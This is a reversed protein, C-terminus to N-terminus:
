TALELFLTGVPAASFFGLLPRYDGALAVSEDPTWNGRCVHLALRERPFGDIVASLLSAAFDLEHASDGREGLAGCMFSRQARAEGFVVETLVPEDLQVSAAGQSLLERGEDRLAVMVDGALEGRAGYQRESGG